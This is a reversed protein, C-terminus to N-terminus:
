GQSKRAIWLSHEQTLTGEANLVLASLDKESNAGAAQEEVFGLELAVVSYTQALEEHQRVQLWAIMASALASFMGGLNWKTGIPSLLLVTAALTLAQCVQIIVFYINAVSQSKRAKNGYWKRQDQIRDTVYSNCREQLSAARLERMRRTIQPRDSFQGGFGLADQAQDKALSRLDSVFKADAETAGMSVPYPDAGTMYRWAMSKAAEAVARGSYWLKEPKMAKRLSTLMFSIAAGAASALALIRAVTPLAAETAALAASLVLTALIIGTIRLHRKQALRSAGDAALYMAPYDSESIILTGQTKTEADQM